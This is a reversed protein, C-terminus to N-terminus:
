LLCIKILKIHFLYDCTINVRVIPNIKQIKKDLWSQCYLIRDYLMCICICYLQINNCSIMTSIMIRNLIGAWDTNLTNHEDLNLSPQM